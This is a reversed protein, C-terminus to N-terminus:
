DLQQRSSKKKSDIGSEEELIEIKTELALNKLTLKAVAKELERKQQELQKIKDLENRMEIRVVKGLLENKGFKKIWKQITTNGRIDYAIQAQTINYKGKEIEKVVKQKFALSYRVVNRIEQGVKIRRKGTL